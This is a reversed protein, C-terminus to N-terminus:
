PRGNHRARRERAADQLAPSLEQLIQEFDEAGAPDGLIVSLLNDAARRTALDDTFSPSLWAAVTRDPDYGAAAIARRAARSAAVAYPLGPSEAELERTARSSAEQFRELDPATLPM